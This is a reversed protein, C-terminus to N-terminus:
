FDRSDPWSAAWSPSCKMVKIVISKGLLKLQVATHTHTHTHTHSPSCQHYLPLLLKNQLHGAGKEEEMRHPILSSAILFHNITRTFIAMVMYASGARIGMVWQWSPRSQAGLKVCNLQACSAFVAFYSFGRVRAWTLNGPKESSHRDLCFSRGTGQFLRCKRSEWIMVGNNSRHHKGNICYISRSSIGARTFIWINM